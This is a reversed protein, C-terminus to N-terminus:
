EKDGEEAPVETEPAAGEAVEEEEEEEAEARPALVTVVVEDEDTLVTVKEPVELDRVFLTEALGLHSIKALVHEPLDQPLCEVELERLQHQLVGGAKIGEPTGELVIPVVTRMTKTLSIGQFDVHIIQGRVPHYQVDKIMAPYEAQDKVKVTVISGQGHVALLKELPIKDVILHLPAEVGEGYLVAPIMGSRRDARSAGTGTNERVKVMIEAM